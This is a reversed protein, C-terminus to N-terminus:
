NRTIGRKSNELSNRFEIIEPFQELEKLKERAESVLLSKDQFVSLAKKLEARVAASVGRRKLGVTNLGELKDNLVICFSPVDKSVRSLGSVMVGSGIRVFQHVGCLGSIFTYAGVHVHGSLASFAAVTVNDALRCDHAIHASAMIFCANGIVTVWDEKASARHVTSFERIICNKGIEVRTDEGKYSIDQPPGAIHANPSIVTNEGVKTNCEIIARVGVKVGDAIFCGPGIYAYPGIDAGSAIESSRDVIATPHIAM